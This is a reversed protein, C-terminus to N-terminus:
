SKNKNETKPKEKREVNKYLFNDARGTIIMSGSRTYDSADKQMHVSKNKSAISNIILFGIILGIGLSVPISLFGVGDKKDSNDEQPIDAETIESVAGGNRLIAEATNLYGVIGGYFSEDSEYAAKMASVANDDFIDGTNDAIFVAYTNEDYNHFLIIGKENDTNDTYIKRAYESDSMGDTEAAICLMVCIGYSSEINEAYADLEEIEDYTLMGASDAVYQYTYASASIILSLSIIVSILIVVFKKTM